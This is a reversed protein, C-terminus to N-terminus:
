LRAAMEVSAVDDLIESFLDVFLDRAHGGNALLSIAVGADPVVRLFGAQGLTNGDHGYVERGGWQMLIWGLGWHSGLTWRDPVEVQPVRMARASDASLVRTGDPAAGDALHLKAFALTDAATAHILGAPGCSRYIGWMPTVTMEGGPPTVHGTAARHLLAEEPLTGATTLQLPAFVRERLVADWTQGRLVEVLRGLVIYGSNCYSM